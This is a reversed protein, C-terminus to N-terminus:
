DRRTYEEPLPDNVPLDALLREIDEATKASVVDREVLELMMFSGTNWIKDSEDRTLQRGLKKEAHDQIARCWQRNRDTPDMGSMTAACFPRPPM